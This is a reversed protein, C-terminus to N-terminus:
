TLFLIVSLFYTYFYRFNPIFFHESTKFDRLM